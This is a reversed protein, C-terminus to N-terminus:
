ILKILTISGNKFLFNSKPALFDSSGQFKEQSESINNQPSIPTFKIDLAISVDM